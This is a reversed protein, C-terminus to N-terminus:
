RGDLSSDSTLLTCCFLCDPYVLVLFLLLCVSVTCCKTDRLRLLSQGLHKPITCCLSVVRDANFACLISQELLYECCTKFLKTRLVHNLLFIIQSMSVPPRYSSEILTRSLLGAYNTVLVLFINHIWGMLWYSTIFLLFQFLFIGTNM